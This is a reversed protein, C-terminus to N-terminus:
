YEVMKGSTADYRMRKGKTAPPTKAPTTSFFGKVMDFGKQLAGKEKPPAQVPPAQETPTNGKSREYARLIAAQREPKYTNWKPNLTPDPLEVKQEKWNPYQKEILEDINIKFETEIAQRNEGDVLVEVPKGEKPAITVWIEEGWEGNVDGYKSIKEVTGTVYSGENNLKIEKNLQAFQDNKGGLRGKIPINLVKVASLLGKGGGGQPVIKGDRTAKYAVGVMPQLKLNTSSSSTGDGDGDKNPAEKSYSKNYEVIEAQKIAKYDNWAMEDIYKVKEAVPLQDYDLGDESAAQRLAEEAGAIYERSEQTDKLLAKRVLEFDQKAQKEDFVAFDSSEVRGDAFTTSGGGKNIPNGFGALWKYAKDTPLPSIDFATIPRTAIDNDFEKEIGDLVGEKYAYKNNLVKDRAKQARTYQEQALSLQDQYDMRLAQEEAAQAYSVDSKSKQSNMMSRVQFDQLKEYAARLRPVDKPHVKAGKYNLVKGFSDLLPKKPQYDYAKFIESSDFPKLQVAAGSNDGKQVYSESNQM